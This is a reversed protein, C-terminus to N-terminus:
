TVLIYLYLVFWKHLAITVSGTAPKLPPVQSHTYLICWTHNSIFCVWGSNSQTIVIWSYCSYPFTKSYIQLCFRQLITL